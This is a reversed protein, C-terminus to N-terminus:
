KTNPLFLAKSRCDLPPCHTTTTRILLGKRRESSESGTTLDTPRGGRVMEVRNVTGGDCAEACGPDSVDGVRVDHRQRLYRPSNCQTFVNGRLGEAILIELPLDLAISPPTLM